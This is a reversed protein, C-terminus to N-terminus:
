PITASWASTTGAEFGDTFIPPFRFAAVGEEGNTLEYRFVVNGADDLGSSEGQSFGTNDYNVGIFYLSEVFGGNLPTGTQVLAPLLGTEDTYLFIGSQPVGGTQFTALFAVDGRENLDFTTGWLGGLFTGSVTGPVPGGERAIALLHGPEARFIGDFANSTQGTFVVQNRNNLQVDRDIANPVVGPQGADPTQGSYALRETTTGNGLFVAALNLDLIGARFAVRGHDNIPVGEVPALDRLIWGPFVEDGERAITTLAGGAGRYIGLTSPAVNAVFAVQGSTNVDPWTFSDFFSTGGPPVQGSRVIEVPPGSGTTRFIGPGNGVGGVANFVVALFAIRDGAIAPHNLLTVDMQGNGDPVPDGDLVVAAVTGDDHHFLFLGQRDPGGGIAEYAGNFLVDRSNNMSPITSGASWFNFIEIGKGPLLIPATLLVALGEEGITLLTDQSGAGQSVDALFLFHGPPGAVPAEIEDIEGEPTLDGVRALPTLDQALVRVQACLAVLLALAIARLKSDNSALSKSSKM